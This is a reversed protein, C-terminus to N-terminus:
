PAAKMGLILRNTLLSPNVVKSGDTMKYVINDMSVRYDVNWKLNDGGTRTKPEQM